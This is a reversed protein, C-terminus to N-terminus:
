KSSRVGALKCLARRLRTHADFLRVFDSERRGGKARIVRALAERAALPWREVGGLACVLPSWREWALREGEPLSRWRRLGLWRASLEACEEIGREREAGFHQALHDTVAM